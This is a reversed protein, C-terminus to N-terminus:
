PRKSEAQSYLAQAILVNLRNIWAPVKRHIKCGDQNLNMSTPVDPVLKGNEIRYCVSLYHQRATLGVRIWKNGPDRLEMRWQSVWHNVRQNNGTGRIAQEVADLVKADALGSPIDVSNAGPIRNLWVGDPGLVPQPESRFLSCGGMVVSLVLTAMGILKKM